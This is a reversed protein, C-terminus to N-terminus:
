VKFGLKDSKSSYGNKNRLHLNSITRDSTAQINFRPVGNDIDLKVYFVENNLVDKVIETFKNSVSTRKSFEVLKKECVFSINRLTIIKKDRLGVDNSILQSFLQKSIDSIQSGDGRLGRVSQAAQQPIAGILACGLIAGLNTDNSNIIGMLRFELSKGHKGMLNNNKTIAPVLSGMKLTNATGTSKASIKYENTSTSIIYDFLQTGTPPFSIKSSQGIGLNLNVLGTRLCYIPGIAEGFDKTILKMPLQTFDYGTLSGSGSQTFNVLDILYDQLEGKIDQREKISNKLKTSYESLTLPASLGFAQPKINVAGLSKPKVLNDINTYFIDEGVRIAVRTHSKSNKDIYTVPQGKSLVNLVRGGDEEYLIGGNVKSQSQIDGQGKWNKNWNDVGRSAAM